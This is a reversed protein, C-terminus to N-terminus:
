PGQESTASATVDGKVGHKGGKDSHGLHMDPQVLNRVRQKLVKLEPFGGETKRDWVLDFGNGRDLWVRFVGGTDPTNHPQLTISAILPPPFTLMLETQTWSARPAWRCRDCFEIVVHPILMRPPQFVATTVPNVPTSTSAVASAVDPVSSSSVSAGPASPECDTCNPDSM